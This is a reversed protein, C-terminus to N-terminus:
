ECIVDKRHTFMRIWCPAQNDGHSTLYSNFNSSRAVLTIINDNDVAEVFNEISKHTARYFSLYRMAETPEQLGIRESTCAM